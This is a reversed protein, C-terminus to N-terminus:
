SPWSRTSGTSIFDLNGKCPFVRRTKLSKHVMTLDVEFGTLTPVVKGSIRVLPKRARVGEGNTRLDETRRTLVPIRTSATLSRDLVFEILNSRSTARRM